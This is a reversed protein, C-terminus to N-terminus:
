AGDDGESISPWDTSICSVSPQGMIWALIQRGKGVEGSSSGSKM